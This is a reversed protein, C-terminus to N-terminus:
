AWRFMGILIISVAKFLMGAFTHMAARQVEATEILTRVSEALAIDRMPLRSPVSPVALRIM